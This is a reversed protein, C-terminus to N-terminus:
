NHLGRNLLCPSVTIAQKLLGEDLQSILAVGISAVLDEPIQSVDFVLGKDQTITFLEALTHPGPSLPPIVLNVPAAVAAGLKQRKAAELVDLPEPPGRKRHAENFIETRSRILREVYQQIRLALPGHPDSCRDAPGPVFPCHPERMGSTSM